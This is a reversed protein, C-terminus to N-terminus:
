LERYYELAAIAEPSNIVGEPNYNEDSWDGGFGLMVNEFGMTIADYDKQTYIAVGYLGEDPRTFFKAIDLLEAWTKPVALDYGYKAKFAAMEDPDEFLDKRYALGNPTM